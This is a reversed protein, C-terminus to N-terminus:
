SSNQASKSLLYVCMLGAAFGPAALVTIHGKFFYSWIELGFSVVILATLMPVAIARSRVMFHLYSGSASQVVAGALLAVAYLGYRTGLLALLTEQESAASSVGAEFMGPFLAM